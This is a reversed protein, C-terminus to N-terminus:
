YGRLRMIAWVIMAGIGVGALVGCGLLGYMMRETDRGLNDM